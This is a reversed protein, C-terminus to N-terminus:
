ISALLIPIAKLYKEKAHKSPNCSLNHVIDALKVKTALKNKKLEIIYKSYSINKSHTLLNLADYIPIPINIEKDKYKSSICGGIFAESKDEACCLYCNGNEIVDHLVAVIKEEDTSMMEMITLPHNIYPEYVMWAMEDINTILTGDKCIYKEEEGSTNAIVEDLYINAEGDIEYPTRYQGEHAKTALDIAQQLTIM